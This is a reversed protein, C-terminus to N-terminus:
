RNSVRGLVPAARDTGSWAVGHLLICCKQCKARINCSEVGAPPRREQSAAFPSFRGVLLNSSSVAPRAALLRTQVARPARCMRAARQKCAIPRNWHGSYSRNVNMARARRAVSARCWRRAVITLRSKMNVQARRMKGYCLRGLLSWSIANEGTAFVSGGPTCGRFRRCLDHM